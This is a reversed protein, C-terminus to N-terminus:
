SVAGWPAASPVPLDKPLAQITRFRSPSFYHLFELLLNGTPVDPEPHLCSQDSRAKRGAAGLKLDAKPAFRVDVPLCFQGSRDFIVWM